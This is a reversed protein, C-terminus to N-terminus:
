HCIDLYLILSVVIGPRCAHLRTVTADSPLGASAQIFPFAAHRYTSSADLHPINVLRSMRPLRVPLPCLPFRPLLPPGRPSRPFGCPAKTPTTGRNATVGVM